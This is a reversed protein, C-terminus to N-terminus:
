ISANKVMTVCCVCRSFSIANKKGVVVMSSSQSATQFSPAEASVECTYMGSGKLDVSKLVLATDSSKQM